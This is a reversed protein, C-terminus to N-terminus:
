GIDLYESNRTREHGLILAEPLVANSYTLYDEFWQWNESSVGRYLSLLRDCHTIVIKELEIGGIDKIKRLLLCLGKIYFATARPSEFMNYKEIRKKFLNLAKDRLSEPIFDAAAAVGLAWLARGNADDLNEKESLGLDITKGSRVYNHFVGKEDLVFEIFRLYTEIRKLLHIRKKDPYAAKLKESLKDHYLCAAILARANDDLTYGSSIDPLSLRAFQIIGFDDTLSFMHNFNIRPTKKRESVEAINGSYKSFLKSYELAVNDWTMNRTRFYANKGLQERLLPDKLLKIIADAYSDPDRFNVLIGSESTVAEKAQAFPTSIVPRGSGLAYSLTGSVAQNPDLSTSIYIDAAKLFNLIKDLSVYENYFNVHSSLDLDHVKQILFNRYSEGGEKLVNPHTVGLIIYMFDPFTKVVKPLAEIIYELGKGKNLFGFTLLIVKKSLGLATKLKAGSEYPVSHIGHPIVSINGEAISYERVLIKKSVNTMVTLGSAKESILRVIGRLESNPSPLVSHFTVISPKKLAELFSIIYSGYKGGFIGFEHQINVLKVDDMGNIKEAAAIYEQEFNQTIQFIVEKPYNYRSIDDANVAAVRSEIVSEFMNDMARTLDSTFTAIGCERPPFTSLYVVKLTKKM